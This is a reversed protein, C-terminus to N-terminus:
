VVYPDKGMDERLGPQYAIARGKLLRSALSGLGLVGLAVGGLKWGLDEGDSCVRLILVVDVYSLSCAAYLM